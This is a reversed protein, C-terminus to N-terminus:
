KCKSVEMISRIARLTLTEALLERYQKSARMNSEFEMTELIETCLTKLEEDSIEKSLTTTLLHAKKPRAGIAINWTNEIYSVAVALVPFDTASRRESLYCANGDKKSIIIHTLVDRDYPMNVFEKLSVRGAHHLVVDVPLCLLSTLIDSFGFRSFISGGITALNRFQVGVIDKVSTKIMGNYLTSTLPNTEIERLTVMAGITIENENEEIQDLGCGSLDIATPVTIDQMKLWLMGGIIRNLRNKKLLEYAEEVNSVKVYENVRLM